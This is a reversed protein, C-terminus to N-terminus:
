IPVFTVTGSVTNTGTSYTATNQLTVSTAGDFAVIATGALSVSTQSGSTFAAVTPWAPILVGGADLTTQVKTALGTFVNETSWNV